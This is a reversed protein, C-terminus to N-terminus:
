KIVRAPVGAATAAAPIDHNVVSGAGIIAMDGIRINNIVNAGSGIMVESGVSVNGAINVGPMISSFDDILTDHGVTVNLNLLVNSGIKIGTTLVCGAGIISGEGVTVTQPNQITARTHIITALKINKNQKLQRFVSAKVKPNGIAMVLYVEDKRNNLWNLGGLVPIQEITSESALGDDLFGILEYSDIATSLMSKVERGLGGAGYIVLPKAM